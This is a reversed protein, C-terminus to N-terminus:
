NWLGGTIVTDGIIQAARVDHSHQHHVFSSVWDKWDHNERAPMYSFRMLTSDVGSAVISMESKSVALCYVDAKHSPITQLTFCLPIVEQM